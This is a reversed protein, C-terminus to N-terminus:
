TFDTGISLLVTFITLVLLATKVLQTLPDVVLMGVQFNAHEPLATMWGVAVLCGVISIMAGIILRFRLELDRMALLDAALVVLATVAVIVEPAALQLLELYSMPRM